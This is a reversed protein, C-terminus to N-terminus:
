RAIEKTNIDTKSKSHIYRGDRYIVYENEEESTHYAEIFMHAQAQNVIHNVM